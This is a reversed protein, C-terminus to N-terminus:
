ESQMNKSQFCFAGSTFKVCNPCPDQPDFGPGESSHLTTCTGPESLLTTEPIADM